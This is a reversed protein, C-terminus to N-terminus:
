SAFVARLGEWCVACYWEVVQARPVGPTRLWWQALQHAAGGIAHAFATLQERDAVPAALAFLEAFRHETALHLEMAHEAVDGSIAAGGGFLVQWRPPDRELFSFYADAGAELQDRLREGAGAIAEFLMAELQARARRLCALYIGDKSGFHEYIVPRTVGAARAIADISTSAYGERAFLQEAVDMLQEARLPAPVRGHRFGAVGGPPKV